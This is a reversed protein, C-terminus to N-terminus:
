AIGLLLSSYHVLPNIIKEVYGTIILLMLIYVGYDQLELWQIALSNPLLGLVAKFGDLPHIPLLNFFALALNVYVATALISLVIGGSFKAAMSMAIALLLNSLPGAVSILASDRKPNSLRSPDFPVPKGWGFGLFLLALTGIPDLHKRPDLSVRGQFKATDDGLLSAVYAHSFEHISLSLVLIGALLIFLLPSQFLLNILM